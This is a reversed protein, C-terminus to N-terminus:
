TQIENPKLSNLVWELLWPGEEKGTGCRYACHFKDVQIIYYFTTSLLLPPFLDNNEESASEWKIEGNAYIACDHAWVGMKDTALDQLDRLKIEM